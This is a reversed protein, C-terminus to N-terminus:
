QPACGAPGIARLRIDGAILGYAQRGGREPLPSTRGGSAHDHRYTLMSTPSHLSFPPLVPLVFKVLLSFIDNSCARGSAEAQRRWDIGGSTWWMCRWVCRFLQLVVSMSLTMALATVVLVPVRVVTTMVCREQVRSM